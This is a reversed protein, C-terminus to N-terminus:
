GPRGRSNKPAVGISDELGAPYLAIPFFIYANNPSNHPTSITTVENFFEHSSSKM